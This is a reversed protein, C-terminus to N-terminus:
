GLGAWGLGGKGTLMGVVSKQKARERPARFLYENQNLGQQNRKREREWVRVVVEKGRRREGSWRRGGKSRLKPSRFLDEATDM